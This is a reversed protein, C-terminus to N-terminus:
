EQDINTRIVVTRAIFDHVARRKENTFMTVIEALVWAVPLAIISNRVFGHDFKPNYINSIEMNGTAILLLDYVLIAVTLLVPVSDRYFSQAYSINYQDDFNVVKIKCISKGIIQGYKGHLYISYVYRGALYILWLPIAIYVSPNFTIILRILGNVPWLIVGDIVHAWFRPGVLHQINKIM